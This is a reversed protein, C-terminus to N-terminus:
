WVLSHIEVDPLTSLANLYVQQRSPAGPDPKGSVRATFYHLRDISCNRPLLIGALKVPDLWKFSTGKLTGYYLNFGDVNVGTRM